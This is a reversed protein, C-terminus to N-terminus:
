GDFYELITSTVHGHEDDTMGPFIPISFVEDAWREAKPYQGKEYGTKRYPPQLHVPNGYHVGTEIGRERLHAVLDDRCESRIVYLYWAPQVNEDGQPPLVLDGVGSLSEHYRKALKTREANWRGLHSLQIRGIAANVTNLRATYGMSVHDGTDPDRGVDRLIRLRDALDGDDTTVMGGDGAVTMNKSPYFSFAACDALSGVRTGDRAAGHAQCADALIPIDGTVRRIEDINAPYGYLHVPLVAAVDDRERIADAVEDTDIMYTDLSADVFVPTAGTMCIANATSIFTAPTTIVSDGKTVGLGKLSLYIARTGSDLAVAYRTGVFDAFENEFKEVSEGRLLLENQLTENAASLMEDDIVPQALPIDM